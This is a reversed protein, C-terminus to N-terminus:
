WAFLYRDGFEAQWRTIGGELNFANTFGAETLVTAAQLSRGGALCYIVLPVDRPLREVWTALDNQLDALPINIAGLLHGAAYEEVTRVDLLVFFFGVLDSPLVSPVTVTAAEPITIQITFVAVPTAPDNSEVTMTRTVTGYFGSTDVAVEVRVSEGPALDDEALAATTCGCSTSVRAIHLTEDGVNTVVFAHPVITGAPVTASFLPSDVGLVPAGVAAGAFCALAILFLTTKQM